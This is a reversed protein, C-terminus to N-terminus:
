VEVSCPYLDSPSSLLYKQVIGLNCTFFSRASFILLRIKEPTEYAEPSLEGM